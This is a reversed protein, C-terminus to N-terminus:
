APEQPLEYVLGARLEFTEGKKPPAFAGRIRNVAMKTIPLPRSRVWVAFGGVRLHTATNTLSPNHILKIAYINVYGSNQHRRLTPLTDHTIHPFTSTAVAV